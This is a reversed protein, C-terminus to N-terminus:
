QKNTAKLCGSGIHNTSNEEISNYTSELERYRGGVVCELEGELVLNEVNARCWTIEINKLLSDIRSQTQDKATEIDRYYKSRQSLEKNYSTVSTKEACLRELRKEMDKKLRLVESNEHRLNENLNTQHKSAEAM